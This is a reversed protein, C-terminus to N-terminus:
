LDKFTLAFWTFLQLLGGHCYIVRAQTCTAHRTALVHHLSVDCRCIVKHTCSFKQLLRQKWLLNCSVYSESQIQAVKQLSLVFIKM